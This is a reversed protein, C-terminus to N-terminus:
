GLGPVEVAERQPSCSIKLAMEDLHNTLFKIGDEAEEKKGQAYLGEICKLMGEMSANHVRRFEEQREGESLPREWSFSRRNSYSSFKNM